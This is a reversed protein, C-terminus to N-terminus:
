DMNGARKAVVGARQKLTGARQKLTGARQNLTGARQHLAGARVSQGEEKVVGSAVNVKKTNKLTSILSKKQISM